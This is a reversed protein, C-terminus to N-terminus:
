CTKIHKRIANDSVGLLKGCQLYSTEEIMKLLDPLSPWNIKPSQYRQKNQCSRCRKSRAYINTRCDECTRQAKEIEVMKRNRGCFTDTQSDCNPCLLRLNEIRNDDNVGNIHDLRLVLPKGNWVPLQGCLACINKLIGLAILRKKLRNRSYTSNKCLHEELPVKKPTPKVWHPQLNLKTLRERVMKYNTGVRAKHLLNLVGCISTAQKVIEIFEADTTEM